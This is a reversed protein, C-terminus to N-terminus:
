TYGLRSLQTMAESTETLKEYDRSNRRSYSIWALTREVIWREPLVKFEPSDSHKVIELKWSFTKKVWDIITQGNYGGDTISTKISAM